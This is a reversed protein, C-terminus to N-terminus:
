AETNREPRLNCNQRGVPVGYSLPFQGFVLPVRYSDINKHKMQRTTVFFHTFVNVIIGTEKTLGTEVAKVV